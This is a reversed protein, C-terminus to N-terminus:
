GLTCSVPIQFPQTSPISPPRLPPLLFRHLLLPAPALTTPSQVLALIISRRNYFWETTPGKYLYDYMWADGSEIMNVPYLKNILPASVIM